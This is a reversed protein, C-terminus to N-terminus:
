MNKEYPFARESRGIGGRPIPSLRPNENDKTLERTMATEYAFVRAQGGRYLSSSFQEGNALFSSPSIIEM